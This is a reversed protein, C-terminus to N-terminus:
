WHEGLLEPIYRAGYKKVLEPYLIGESNRSKDHWGGENLWHERKMILQMSTINDQRTPIGTMITSYIHNNESENHKLYRDNCFIVGRLYVSFILISNDNKIDGYKNYIPALQQESFYSLRQLAHPYLINEANLVIIYEGKASRIGIDRLSNRWDNSREETIIIQNIFKFQEPNLEDEYPQSKPGDHLLIIEFETYTQIILCQIARRLFDRDVLQECDVMVITFKPKKINM